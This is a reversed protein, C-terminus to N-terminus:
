SGIAGADGGGHARHLVKGGGGHGMSSLKPADFEGVVRAQRGRAGSASSDRSALRPKAPDASIKEETSREALRPKDKGELKPPPPADDNRDIAELPPEVEPPDEAGELLPNEEPEPLGPGNEGPPPPTFAGFSGGGCSGGSEEGDEPEIEPGDEVVGDDDDGSPEVGHLAVFTNTLAELAVQVDRRETFDEGLLSLGWTQNAGYIKVDPLWAVDLSACDVPKPRRTNDDTEESEEAEAGTACRAVGIRGGAKTVRKAVGPLAMSLAGQVDDPDDDDPDMFAVIRATELFAPDELDKPGFEELLGSNDWTRKGATAFALLKAPTLDVITGFEAAAYYSHFHEARNRFADYENDEGSDGETTTTSSSIVEVLAHTSPTVRRGLAECIPDKFASGHGKKKMREDAYIGCGYAGVKVNHDAKLIEATAEVYPRIARSMGCLPSYLIILWVQAVDEVLETSNESGGNEKRTDDTINSGEVVTKNTEAGVQLVYKGNNGVEKWNSRTLEVVSHSAAFLQEEVEAMVQFERKAKEDKVKYLGDYAAQLLVFLEELLPNKKKTKDPHFRRSLERFSAKISKNNADRDVDLRNPL